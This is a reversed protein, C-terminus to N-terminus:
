LHLCQIKLRLFWSPELFPQHATPLLQVEPLSQLIFPLSNSTAHTRIVHTIIQLHIVVAQVHPTQAAHQGAHDESLLGEEMPM